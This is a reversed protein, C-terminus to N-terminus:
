TAMQSYTSMYSQVLGTRVIGGYPEYLRCVNEKDALIDIHMFM